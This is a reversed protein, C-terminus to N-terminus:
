EQFTVAVLWYNCMCEYPKEYQLVKHRLYYCPKRKALLNYITATMSEMCNIPPSIPEQFKKPWNGMVHGSITFVAMNTVSRIASRFILVDRSDVHVVDFSLITGPMKYFLKAGSCTGWYDSFLLTAM